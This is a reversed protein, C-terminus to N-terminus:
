KIIQTTDGHKTSHDCHSGDAPCHNAIGGAAASAPVNACSHWDSHTIFIEQPCTITNTTHECIVLSGADPLPPAPPPPSPATCSWEVRLSKLASGDPDPGM